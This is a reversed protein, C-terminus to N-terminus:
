VVAISAEAAMAETIHYEAYEQVLPWEEKLYRLAPEVDECSLEFDDINTIGMTMLDTASAYGLLITASISDAVLEADDIGDRLIEEAVLGAMGILARWNDPLDVAPFGARKAADHMQQPCVRTRFQGRWAQEDPNGSENKWILIDGDGGFRRCIIRHGAEHYAANRLELMAIQEKTLESM